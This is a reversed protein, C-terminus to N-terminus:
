WDLGYRHKDILLMSMVMCEHQAEDAPEGASVQWGRGDGGYFRKYNTASFARLEEQKKDVFDGYEFPLRSFRPALFTAVAKTPEDMAHRFSHYDPWLYDLKHRLLSVKLLNPKFIRYERFHSVYIRRKERILFHKYEEKLFHLKSGKGIAGAAAFIPLLQAISPLFQEEYFKLIAENYQLDIDKGKDEAMLRHEAFAINAALNKEYVSFQDATLIEGLSAKEFDWGEWVSFERDLSYALKEEEMKHVLWAQEDSLNLNEYKHKIVEIQWQSTATLM